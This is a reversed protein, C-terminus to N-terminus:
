DPQFLLRRNNYRISRMRATWPTPAAARWAASAVVDLSTLHYFAAYRPSATDSRFRRALLVGEIASFRPVHETDYWDNFEDEHEPPVDMLNLLLGAAGTPAPADGPLTQLGYWVGALGATAPDAEGIDWLALREVPGESGAAPVM